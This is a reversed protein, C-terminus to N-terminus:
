GVFIVESGVFSSSPSSSSSTSSSTSSSSSSSSFASSSGVFSGVFSGFLLGVFLGLSSGVLNGVFNGVLNGVLSGVGSTLRTKKQGQRVFICGHRLDSVEGERERAGGGGGVVSFFTLRRFLRRFLRRAYRVPLWRFGWRPPRRLRRRFGRGTHGPLPIVLILVIGRESVWGRRRHLRVIGVVISPSEVTAFGDALRRIAVQGARVPYLIARVPSEAIRDRFALVTPRRRGRRHVIGYRTMGNDLKRVDIGRVIVHWRLLPFILLLLLLLSVARRTHRHIRRGGPLRPPIVAAPGHLDRPFAVHWALRDRIAGGSEAVVYLFTGRPWPRDPVRVNGRRVAAIEVAPIRHPFRARAVYRARVADLVAVNPEAVRHCRARLSPHYTRGRLAGRVAGRVARYHCERLQYHAVTRRQPRHHQGAAVLEVAAGGM